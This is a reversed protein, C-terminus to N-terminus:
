RPIKGATRAIELDHAMDRSAKMAIRVPRKEAQDQGAPM